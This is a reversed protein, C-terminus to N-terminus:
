VLIHLVSVLRSSPPHILAKSFRKIEFKYSEGSGEASGSSLTSCLCLCFERLSISSPFLDSLDLLESLPRVSFSTARCPSLDHSDSLPRLPFLDSVSLPQLSISYSPFLDCSESFLDHSDSIPRASLSTSSLDLLESLPRMVRFSTTRTPFLDPSSTPSLDPLSLVASSWFELGPLLFLVVASWFKFGPPLSFQGPKSAPSGSLRFGRVRLRGKLLDM